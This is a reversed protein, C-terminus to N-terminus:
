ELMRMSDKDQQHEKYCKMIYKIDGGRACEFYKPSAEKGNM